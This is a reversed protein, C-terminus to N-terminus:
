LSGFCYVYNPLASHPPQCFPIRHALTEEDGPQEADSSLWILGNVVICRYIRKELFKAVFGKFPNDPGIPM